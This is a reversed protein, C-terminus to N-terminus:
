EFFKLLEIIQHHKRYKAISMADNFHDDKLHVNAGANLLRAVMKINGLKVAHMLATGGNYTVSDNINENIDVRKDKLLIEVIEPQNEKIALILPTILKCKWESQNVNAGADLLLQVNEKQHAKIATLLPSSQSDYECNIQAGAKILMKQITTQPKELYEIFTPQIGKRAITECIKPSNDQKLCFCNISSKACTKRFELVEDDRQLLGGLDIQPCWTPIQETPPKSRITFISKLLKSYRQM